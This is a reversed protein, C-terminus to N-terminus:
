KTKWGEIFNRNEDRAPCGECGLDPIQGNGCKEIEDWSFGHEYYARLRCSNLNDELREESTRGDKRLKEIIAQKGWMSESMYLKKAAKFVKEKLDDDVYIKVIAM